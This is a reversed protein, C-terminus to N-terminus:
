CDGFLPWLNSFCRKSFHPGISSYYPYSHDVACHPLNSHQSQGLLPLTVHWMVAAERAERGEVEDSPAPELWGLARQEAAKRKVWGGRGKLYVARERIAKTCPGKRRKCCEWMRLFILVVFDLVYSGCTDHVWGGMAARKPHSAPAWLRPRPRDTSRVGNYAGNVSCKCCVVVTEWLIEAWQSHRSM